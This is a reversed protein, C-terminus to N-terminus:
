RGAPRAAAGGGITGAGAARQQGGITGAGGMAGGGITGTGGARQQGGITGAGGMAGGGITGVGAARQQGGITGAGGMAGGGITGAGAQRQQGGIMGIGTTGMGGMQGGGFNTTGGQQIARNTTILASQGLQNALSQQVVSPTTYILRQNVTVTKQQSAREDLESVFAEVALFTAETSSVILVNSAADVALTMQPEQERPTAGQGGRGQGQMAQLAQMMQQMQQPGGVMQPQQQQGGRQNGQANSRMQAAFAQEVLTRADAAKMYNLKISRPVPVRSVDDRNRQDLIKILREITKHDVRNAQVWLSNLRENTSITVTGTKEIANGRSASLLGILESQQWDPLDVSALGSVGLGSTSTGMLSQLESSVVTASAHNLYYERFILEGLFMEDSLMRILEEVKALAEPDDSTLVIGGPTTTLKVDAPQGAPAAGAVQALIPQEAIRQLRTMPLEKDYLSDILDDIDIFGEQGPPMAPVVPEPTRELEPAIVNIGQGLAPLIAQLQELVLETAAPSLPITRIPSINSTEVLGDEGQSTLFDRIEKIQSLTGRVIIQRATTDPEVTPLSTAATPQQQQRNGGGGTQVTTATTSLAPATPIFMKIRDVATQPSMRKLPIIAFQPRNLQMQEITEKVTAHVNPRAQLHIGNTRPDLSLRTDPNRVLLTQLVALVTAPDAFGVDYSEFQVDGWMMDSPDSATYAADMRVLLDRAREVMYGQGSLFIRKGTSDVETRLSPENADIALLTRMMRLADEATLSKLEVMHLSGITIGEPDDMRRILNRITRLTGGTETIVIQQSRPLPLIVGQPGLLREVETQVDAPQTRNLDFVVRCIEYKGREDLEDPTITELLNQPIGDPLYTVFLTKGKRVLTYDKFQLYANLIDLGETPTYYEGDTLNLTGTPMRDSQLSLAAQDAFWEIVYQWPANRFYFRIMGAPAERPQQVVSQQPPGFQQPGGQRGGPPQQQVLPQQVLPQQAAPQQTAPQQIMPQQFGGPPQEMGPRGMGPQGQGRQGRQQGMMPQQGAPPSQDTASPVVGPQAPQTTEDAVPPTPPVVPPTVPTTEDAVPPTPLVPPPTVPTTGDAVPPTPPVPPVPQAPATSPEVQLVLMALPLGFTLTRRSLGGGQVPSVTNVPSDTSVPSAQNVPPTQDVPEDTRIGTPEVAEEVAPQVAPPTPEIVPEPTPAPVPTPVPTPVPEPTPMPAPITMPTPDIVTGLGVPEGVAEPILDANHEPKTEEPEGPVTVPAQPAPACGNCGALLPILPLLGVTLLVIYKQCFKSM